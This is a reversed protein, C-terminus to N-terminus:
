INENNIKQDLMYRETYYTYTLFLFLSVTIIYVFNGIVVEVEVPLLYSSNTMQLLTMLNSVLLSIFCKKTKTILLLILTHHHSVRNHGRVEKLVPFEQRFFGYSTLFHLMQLTDLTSVENTDIQYVGLSRAKIHM